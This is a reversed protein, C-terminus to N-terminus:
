RFFQQIFFVDFPTGFSYNKMSNDIIILIAVFLLM